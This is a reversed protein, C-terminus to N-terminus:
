VRFPYLMVWIVQTHGIPWNSHFKKWVMGSNRHAHTQNQQTQRWSDSLRAVHTGFSWEKPPQDPVTRPLLVWPHATVGGGSHKSVLLLLGSPSLWKWCPSHDQLAQELLKFLQLLPTPGSWPPLEDGFTHGTPSSKEAIPIVWSHGRAALLIREWQVLFSGWDEPPETSGRTASVEHTALLPPRPGYGALWSVAKFNLRCSPKVVGVWSPLSFYLFLFVAM